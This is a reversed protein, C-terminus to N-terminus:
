PPLPPGLSSPSTPGLGTGNNGGTYGSSTGPDPGLSAGAILGQMQWAGFVGDGTQRGTRGGRLQRLTELETERGNARLETEKEQYCQSGLTKGGNAPPSGQGWIPLPTVTRPCKTEQM